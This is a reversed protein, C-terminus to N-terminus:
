CWGAKPAEKPPEAKAPAAKAPEGKAAGKAEAQQQAQSAPASKMTRLKELDTINKELAAIRDQAERLAKDKAAADDGAASRASASLVSIAVSSFLEPMCSSAADCVLSPFSMTSMAAPPKLRAARVSWFTM